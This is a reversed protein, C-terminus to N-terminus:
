KGEGAKYAAVLEALLEKVEHIGACLMWAVELHRDHAQASLLRMEETTM